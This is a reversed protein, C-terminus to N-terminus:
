KESRDKYYYQREAKRKAYNKLRNLNKNYDLSFINGYVCDLLYLMATRSAFSGIKQRSELCAIRLTIKALRDYPWVNGSATVLIFPISCSILEDMIYHLQQSNCYQSIILAVTNASKNTDGNTVEQFGNLSELNSNMGLRLLKYHFDEAVILSEGRGYIKIVDAKALLLSAKRIDEAPLNNYTSELARHSLKYFSKLIDECSDEPAIPIDELIKNTGLAFTSLESALKIKFDAFGRAGLKKCLRIISAQSVFCEKGLEELSLNVVIRPYDHIFHIIQQETKTLKIGNNVQEFIM